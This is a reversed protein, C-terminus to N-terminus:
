FEFSIPQFETSGKYKSSPYTMEQYSATLINDRWQLQKSFLLKSQYSLYKTLEFLIFSKVRYVIGSM